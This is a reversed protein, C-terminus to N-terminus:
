RGTFAPKRRENFAAFGERADETRAMNALMFQAYELASDLSMERIRALAQKGLRIGTPSKSVIGAVLAALTADLEGAPVAANVIERKAAEAATMPEGTICLQMLTRYSIVRMLYPLIMMPFLGVRAEPAGILADERAVVLDCACALGFGGALAHGNLRAILPLRCADMRKLLAVVYHRPDAADLAFPTGDAAPKLDGGACFAEEGVGTLVVVRLSSDAEAEDLGAILGQAVSENLANRREPRNIALRMVGGERAKLVVEGM